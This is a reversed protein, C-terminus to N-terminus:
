LSVSNPNSNNCVFSKKEFVRACGLAAETFGRRLCSYGPAYSAVSAARRCAMSTTATLQAVFPLHRRSYGNVVM